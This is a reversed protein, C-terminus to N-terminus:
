NMMMRKKWLGAIGKVLHRWLGLSRKERQIISEGCMGVSLPTREVALTHIKKKREKELRSMGIDREM